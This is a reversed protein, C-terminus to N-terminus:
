LPTTRITVDPVCLAGIVIVLAPSPSAMMVESCSGSSQREVLGLWRRVILTSPALLQIKRPSVIM